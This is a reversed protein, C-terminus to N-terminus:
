ETIDIVEVKNNAIEMGKKVLDFSEKVIDKYLGVITENVDGVRKSEELSKLVEHTVNFLMKNANLYFEKRELEINDYGVQEIYKKERDVLELINTIAYTRAKGINEVMREDIPMAEVVKFAIPLDDSCNSVAVHSVVEAKECIDRIKSLPVSVKLRREIYRRIEMPNYKKVIYLEAIKANVQKLKAHDLDSYHIADINNGM